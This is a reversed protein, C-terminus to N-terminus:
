AVHRQMIVRRYPPAATTKIDFPATRSLDYLRHFVTEFEDATALDEPRARGVPVIFFVSWLAIGLGTM